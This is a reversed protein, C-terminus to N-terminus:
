KTASNKKKKENLDEVEMEVTEDCTRWGYPRSVLSFSYGFHPPCLWNYTSFTEIRNSTITEVPPVMFSNSVILTNSFNVLVNVKLSKM